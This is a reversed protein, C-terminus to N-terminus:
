KKHGPNRKALPNQYIAERVDDVEIHTYIETTSISEHGLVKQLTRIDVQGYKHMLTAATHRLKHVSIKDANLGAKLVYKKVMSQVTRNSLPTKRKSLFVYPVETDEPRVAMYAELTEVCADNLRINREKNGKGVIHITEEQIDEIKLNTLESLRIGCNLFLTIISLDREYFEGDVANLLSLAEDLTLYVPDRSKVKPIELRQTPDDMKTDIVTTLYHYLNKIAATKRKRTSDINSRKSTAYSLFAYIDPLTVQKIVKLDVDDISITDFEADPDVMQFRVKLFRFFQMLDNRYSILTNPSFGRISLLYDDLEDLLPNHKLDM